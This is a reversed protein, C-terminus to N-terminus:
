SFGPADGSPLEESAPRVSPPEPPRRPVEDRREAAARHTEASPSVNANPEALPVTCTRSARLGDAGSQAALSFARHCSSQTLATATSASAAAPRRPPVVPVHPPAPERREAPVELTVVTTRSRHRRRYNRRRSPPARSSCFLVRKLFPSPSAARARERADTRQRHREVVRAHHHPAHVGGHARRRSRRPSRPRARVRRALRPALHTQARSVAPVVSPARHRVVRADDHRPVPPVVPRLSLKPVLRAVTVKVLHGM